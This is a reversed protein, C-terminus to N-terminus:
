KFTLNQSRICLSKKLANKDFNPFVFTQRNDVQNLWNNRICKFLHVPDFMVYINRSECYPNVFKTQLTGACFREFRNRNVRNNDSILCVVKFGIETLLKIVLNKLAFLMDSSLYKIPFLGVVEKYKSMISYIMLVQVTSALEPANQDNVVLSGVKGDKFTIEPKVYIEDLLLCCM